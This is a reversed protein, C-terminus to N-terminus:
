FKLVSSPHNGTSRVCRSGECHRRMSQSITCRRLETNWRALLRYLNRQVPKPLLVCSFCRSIGTKGFSSQLPCFSSLKQDWHGNHYGEIRRSINAKRLYNLLYTGWPDFVATLSPCTISNIERFPLHLCLGSIWARHMRRGSASHIFEPSFFPLDPARTQKQVGVVSTRAENETRKRQERGVSEPELRLDSRIVTDDGRANQKRAAAGTVPWTQQQQLGADWRCHRMMLKVQASYKKIYLIAFISQRVQTCKSKRDTNNLRKSSPWQKFTQTSEQVSTEMHIINTCPHSMCISVFIKKNPGIAQSAPHQTKRFVTLTIWKSFIRKSVEEAPKGSPFLELTWNSDTCRHEQNLYVIM